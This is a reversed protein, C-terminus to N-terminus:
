GIQAGMLPKHEPSVEYYSLWAVTPVHSAQSASGNLCAYSKSIQLACLRCPISLCDFPPYSSSSCVFSSAADKLKFALIGAAFVEVGSSLTAAFMWM